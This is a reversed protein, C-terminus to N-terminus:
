DLPSKVGFRRLTEYDQIRASQNRGAAGTYQLTSDNIM